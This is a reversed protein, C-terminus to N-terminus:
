IEKRLDRDPFEIELALELRSAIREGLRSGIKSMSINSTLITPLYNSFRRDIISYYQKVIRENVREVGLDDIFLFPVEHYKELVFSEQKEEIARLLEDDLEDSRKYIIWPYGQCILTKLLVLSFYTKGSGANGSIYLSKKSKEKLWNRGIQAIEPYIADVHTLEVEHYMRGIKFREIATDWNMNRGKSSSPKRIGGKHDEESRTRARGESIRHSEGSSQRETHEELGTSENTQRARSEVVHNYVQALANQTKVQYSQGIGMPCYTQTGAPHRSNHINGEM